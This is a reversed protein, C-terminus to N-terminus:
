HKAEERDYRKVAGNQATSVMMLGLAATYFQFLEPQTWEKEPNDKQVQEINAAALHEAGLMVIQIAAGIVPMVDIGEIMEQWKFQIHASEDMHEDLLGGFEKALEITEEMSNKPM